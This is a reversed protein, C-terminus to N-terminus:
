NEHPPIIRANFTRKIQHLQKLETASFPAVRNQAVLVRLEDRTYISWESAGAEILAAKTAVDECFFVTEELTQSYVMVFPLSLLDLLLWKHDKLTDVFARPCREPPEVTLTDQGESGLKLGLQAAKELLAIPTPMM